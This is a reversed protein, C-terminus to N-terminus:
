LGYRQISPYDVYLNDYYYYLVFLTNGIPSTGVHLDTIPIMPAVRLSVPLEPKGWM